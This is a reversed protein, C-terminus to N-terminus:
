AAAAQRTGNTNLFAMAEELTPEAPPTAHHPARPSAPASGPAPAPRPRAVPRPSSSPAAPALRLKAAHKAAIAIPWDPDQLLPSKAATLRATEEAVAKFLPTGERMVDPYLTAAEKVSATVASQHAQAQRESAIGRIFEREAASLELGSVGTIFARSSM